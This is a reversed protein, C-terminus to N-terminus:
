GQVRLAARWSLLFRNARVRVVWGAGVGGRDVCADFRRRLRERHGGRRNMPNRLEGVLGGAPVLRWIGGEVRRGLSQVLIREIAAAVACSDFRRLTPSGRRAPKATWGSFGTGFGTGLEPTTAEDSM